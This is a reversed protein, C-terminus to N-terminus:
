TIPAPNFFCLFNNLKFEEAYPKKRGSAVELILNFLRAGAEEVSEEGTAIGGANFDILDNWQKQMDNRSSVKIVPAEALGYPTGRGTMFVQLTIGSALQSPGCVIDSAPTAAFILGKKIRLSLPQPLVYAGSEIKMSFCTWSITM